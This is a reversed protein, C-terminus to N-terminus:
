ISRQEKIDEPLFENSTKSGTKASLVESCLQDYYGKLAKLDNITLSEFDALHYKTLEGFSASFVSGENFATELNNSRNSSISNNSRQESSTAPAASSEPISNFWREMTQLSSTRAGITPQRPAFSSSDFPDEISHLSSQSNHSANVLGDTVTVNPSSGTATNTAYSIKTMLESVGNSFKSTFTSRRLASNPASLTNELSGSRTRNHGPSLRDLFSQSRRNRDLAEIAKEQVGNVDLSDADSPRSSIQLASVSGIRGIINRVRNLGNGDTGPFGQTLSAEFDTNYQHLDKHGDTTKFTSNSRSRNVSQTVASSITNFLSSSRSRDKGELESEYAKNLDKQQGMKEDQKEIIENLSLTILDNDALKEPIKFDAAVIDQVSTNLLFFLIAEFNTLYYQLEGNNLFQSQIFEALAKDSSFEPQACEFDALEAPNATVDINLLDFISKTPGPKSRAEDNPTYSSFSSTLTVRSVDVKHPDILNVFQKVYSFNLYLDHTATDSELHNIIIYIFTPLLIDNSIKSSDINMCSACLNIMLKQAKVICQLKSFPTIAETLANFESKIRELLPNQSLASAQFQEELALTESQNSSEFFCQIPLHLERLLQIKADLLTQVEIDRQDFRLLRHYLSPSDASSCSSFLKAQAHEVANWITLFKYLGFVRLQYLADPDSRKVLKISSSSYNAIANLYNYKQSDSKFIESRQLLLRKNTNLQTYINFVLSNLDHYFAHFLKGLEALTLPNKYRPEKLYNLFANVLADIKPHLDKQALGSVEESIASLLTPDLM